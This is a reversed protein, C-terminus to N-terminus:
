SNPEAFRQLFGWGDKGDWVLRVKKAGCQCIPWYSGFDDASFDEELFIGGADGVIKQLALFPHM